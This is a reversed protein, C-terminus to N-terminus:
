QPKDWNPDWAGGETIKCQPGLLIVRQSEKVEADTKFPGHLTV